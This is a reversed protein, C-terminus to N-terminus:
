TAQLRPDRNAYAAKIRAENGVPLYLSMDLGRATAATIEAATLNDRFFFVERKAPAMANYGPIINDWNFPSGDLNEFLDVGNPSVLYTNWCSRLHLVHVVIFNHPLDLDM